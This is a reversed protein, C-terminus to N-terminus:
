APVAPRPRRVWPAAQRAAALGPREAILARCRNLEAPRGITSVGVVAGGAGHLALFRRDPLSGDVLVLETGPGTEGLSQLKYEYHDSWFYPPAALPVPAGTIAAAVVAATEGAHDWHEFRRGRVAGDPTFRAVDGVAYVGDIATRGTADVVVGDDLPIGSGALWETNPRAGVAVVLASTALTSGGALDLRLGGGETRVATLGTGCRLDVGREVHLAAVLAALDPHLVAALPAPGAELVTVPVGRQRASAAVELGLFGAGLVTLPGGALLVSRLRVADGATRVTLVGPHDTIPPLPRARAGTAIVLHDYSEATGDALLVTRSTTDVGVAGTGPRTSIALEALRQATRLPPVPADPDALLVAKSLPPRDYPLRDEEGILVIEGAHGRSRLKEAVRLGALGAGVIITRHESM